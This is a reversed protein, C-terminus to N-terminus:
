TDATYLIALSALPLLVYLLLFKALARLWKMVGQVARRRPRHIMRLPSQTGPRTAKTRSQHPNCGRAVKGAGDVAAVSGEKTSAVAAQEKTAPVAAVAPVVVAVSAAGAGGGGVTEVVVQQSAPAIDAVEAPGSAAEENAAPVAAVSAARAGGEGVLVAPEAM